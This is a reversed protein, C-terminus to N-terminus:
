KKCIFIEAEHFFFIALKGARISFIADNGSGRDFAESLSLKEPEDGDFYIGQVNQYNDGFINELSSEDLWDTNQMNRHREFKVLELYAKEPKELLFHIWRDVFEKEIFAKAFESFHEKYVNEFDKERGM